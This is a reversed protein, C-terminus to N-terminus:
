VASSWASCAKTFTRVLRMSAATSSIRDSPPPHVRSSKGLLIAARHLFAKKKSFFFCFVKPTATAYEGSAYVIPLLKKTRKKL